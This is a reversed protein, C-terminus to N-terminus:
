PCPPRPKTSLPTDEEREQERRLAKSVERGRGVSRSDRGTHRRTSPRSPSPPRSQPRHTQKGEEKGKGGEQGRRGRGCVVALVDEEEVAEAFVLVVDLEVVFLKAVLADVDLGVILVTRRAEEGKGERASGEKGRARECDFRSVNHLHIIVALAVVVLTSVVVVLIV